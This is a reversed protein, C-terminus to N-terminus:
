NKGGAILAREAANMASQMGRHEGALTWEAEGNRRYAAVFKNSAVQEAGYEGQNNHLTSRAHNHRYGNTATKAKAPTAPAPKLIKFATRSESLYDWIAEAAKGRNEQPIREMFCKFQKVIMEPFEDEMFDEQAAQYEAENYQFRAPAETVIEAEVEIIPSESPAVTHPSPVTKPDDPAPKPNRPKSLLRYADKLNSVTDLKDRNEYLSAYRRATRDDFRVNAKLWPMWEGHGLSRKQRELLRGIQIADTVTNRLAGVIGDHLRNVETAINTPTITSKMIRSEQKTGTASLRSPAPIDGLRRVLRGLRTWIQRARLNRSQIASWLTARNLQAIRAAQTLSLETPTEPLPYQNMTLFKKVKMRDCKYM